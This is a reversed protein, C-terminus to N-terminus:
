SHTSRFIRSRGTATAGFPQAEVPFSANARSEMDWSAVHGQCYADLGARAIMVANDTCLSLPPIVVEIGQATAVDKLRARLRSNASVGGVVALVREGSQEVARLAKTVLVDVIAEQYSAAIDATRNPHDWDPHDRLYYLLSTKLGSFSFDLSTRKGLSRPFRVAKPNGARALKDLAPGGPFGLGLLKAGKDFAEGAADDLTRGLLRYGSTGVTQYLHTHGGSVVLVLASSRIAPRDIWASAIHGELHNVTVWPVGLAYALAKGYSLGVLLAGALGPGSTCAILHLDTWGAAAEDLARRAIPDITEIHRRAALEPVVGGYPGHTAHQSSVISSRVRGEWDLVAAATEDCSTEIGLVLGSKNVHM